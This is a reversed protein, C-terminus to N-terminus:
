ASVIAAAPSTRAGEGAALYRDLVADIVEAAHVSLAALPRNRHTRQGLDVEVISAAGFQQAVDILLGAEVGYGSALEVRDLAARTIACEGSLPQTLWALEPFCRALLPRAVLANVRGGEGEVGNLSRTYTAKALVRSSGDVLADVLGVVFRPHFDTVDADLFVVIDGDTAAAGTRMAGGKGVPRGPSAGTAVVVHAGAARALDATADTSGDDVVVLQDVLGDPGALERRVCAVIAGITATEDHAPICVSVRVPRFSASM